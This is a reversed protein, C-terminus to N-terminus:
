VPDRFQQGLVAEIAQSLGHSDQEILDHLDFPGVGQPGPGVLSCLVAGAVGVPELRIANLWPRM